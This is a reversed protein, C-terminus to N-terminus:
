LVTLYMYVAISNLTGKGVKQKCYPVRQHYSRKKDKELQIKGKECCICTCVHCIEEMLQNLRIPFNQCKSFKISYLEQTTLSFNSLSSLSPPQPM